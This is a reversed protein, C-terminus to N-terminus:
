MEKQYRAMLYLELLGKSVVALFALLVVGLNAGLGYTAWAVIVIAWQLVDGSLAKARNRMAVNREDDREVKNRKAESPNTEESWIALRQSFSVSFLVTAGGMLAAWVHYPQGTRWLLFSVGVLCLGIVILVTFFRKKKKM